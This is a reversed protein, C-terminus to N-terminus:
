LKDICISIKYLLYKKKKGESFELVPLLETKFLKRNHGLSFENGLIEESYEAM